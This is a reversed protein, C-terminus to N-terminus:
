ELEIATGSVTVMLMSGNQGLTEYDFDVGIVGDAGLAKAHELMESQAIERAEQLKTEYVKTRGGIIDRIGAMLDRFVNAGLIVEGTVIGIYKKVKKGEISNTTTILM